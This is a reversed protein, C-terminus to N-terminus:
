QIPWFESVNENTVVEAPTHLVPAPPLSGDAINNYLYVLVDHNQWIEHQHITDMAGSEVYPIHQETVDHGVVYVEGVKGAEEVARAAGFPGGATLYIAALDPNASMLNQAHTYSEDSSDHAEYVGVVEMEPCEAIAEEFGAQRLEHATVGFQGTIIGVKGKGGTKKITLYGAMKGANFLDQGISIIRPSGEIDVAIHGIKLGAEDAQELAPIMSENIPFMYIADYGQVISNEIAAVMLTPDLSESVVNFDIQVPLGAEEAEAIAKTMGAKQVQWFPNNEYALYAIKVTKGPDATSWEPRDYGGTYQAIKEDLEEESMCANGMEEPAAAEEETSAEEEAPAAEEVPAAEEPPEAAPPQTPQACASLLMLIFMVTITIHLVRKDM